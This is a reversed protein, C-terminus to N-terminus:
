NLLRPTKETENEPDLVALRLAEIDAKLNSIEETLEKLKSHTQSNFVFIDGLHDMLASIVHEPQITISMNDHALKQALAMLTEIYRKKVEATTVDTKKSM